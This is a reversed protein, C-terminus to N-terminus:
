ARPPPIPPRGALGEHQLPPLGAFVAHGIIKFGSPAAPIQCMQACSITCMAMLCRAAFTCCACNQSNTPKAQASAHVLSANADLPVMRAAEVPALMLGIGIFVSLTLRIISVRKM